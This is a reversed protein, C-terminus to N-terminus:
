LLQIKFPNEKPKPLDVQSKKEIVAETLRQTENKEYTEEYNASAM